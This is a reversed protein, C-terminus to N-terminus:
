ARHTQSSKAVSQRYVRRQRRPQQLHTSCLKLTGVKGSIHTIIASVKGIPALRSIVHRGAGGCGWGAGLGLGERGKTEVSVVATMLDWERAVTCSAM